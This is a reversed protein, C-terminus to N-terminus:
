GKGPSSVASVVEIYALTLRGNEQLFLDGKLEYMLKVFFVYLVM